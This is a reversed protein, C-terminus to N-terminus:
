KKSRRIKSLENEQEFFQQPSKKKQENSPRKINEKGLEDLSPRSHGNWNHPEEDSREELPVLSKSSACQSERRKAAKSKDHQSVDPQYLLGSFSGSSNSRQRHDIVVEHRPVRSM